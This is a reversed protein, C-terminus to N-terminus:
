RQPLAAREKPASALHIKRTYGHSFDLEPHLTHFAIQAQLHDPVWMDDADLFGVFDARSIQLGINRAAAPSGCSCRFYRLPNRWKSALSFTDDSSNDDILIIELNPCNQAFISNIADPLFTAANHAPIIVSISPVKVM